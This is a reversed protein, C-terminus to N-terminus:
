WNHGDEGYISTIRDAIRNMEDLYRDANSFCERYRKEAFDMDFVSRANHKKQVWQNGESHSSEYRRKAEKYSFLLDLYRNDREM